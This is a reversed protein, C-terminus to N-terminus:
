NRGVGEDATAPVQSDEEPRRWLYWAALLLSVPIALELVEEFTEHHARLFENAALGLKELKRPLGDLVLKSFGALLLAVAIGSESRLRQRVGLVLWKWNRRLLMGAIVLIAVIVVVAVIKEVIPVEASKYFKSKFIGMETFKKDFDLERCMLLLVVIPCLIRNLTERVRARFVLFVILIAYLWVTLSEVLGGEATLSVSSDGLSAILTALLLALLITVTYPKM